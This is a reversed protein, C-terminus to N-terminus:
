DVSRVLNRRIQRTSRRRDCIQRRDRMSRREKSIVGLRPESESSSTRSLQQRRQRVQQELLVLAEPLSLDRPIPGLTAVVSVDRTIELQLRLESGLHEM